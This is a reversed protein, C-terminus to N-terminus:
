CKRETRNFPIWSNGSRWNRSGTNERRLIFGSGDYEYYGPKEDIKLQEPTDVGCFVSTEIIMFKKDEESYLMDVVLSDCKLVQRTRIAIRMAEEPLASKIVNGAGSARFDGKNPYRYYGFLKNGVVIIRLDYKSSSIFKQFYVYNIQRSFTWYTKRGTKSFCKNVYRRASQKDNLKEVGFSASGTSIKSIVPYSANKIFELAEARSNTVFTPVCPLGFHVYLYNARVKDEYSWIEDFSPFCRKKLYKELFYFKTKAIEQYDPSSQPHWLIIDFKRAEDMWDSRLIDYYFYTINNNKLFREYKPWYARRAIYGPEDWEDDKVLGIKLEEQSSNLVVENAENLLSNMESVPIIYGVSERHKLNWKSVAPIKKLLSKFSLMSAISYSHALVM